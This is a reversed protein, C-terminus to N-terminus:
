GRLDFLLCEAQSSTTLVLDQAGSVKLADGAKLVEGNVNVEGAAVHLYTKRHALSAWTLTAGAELVTAFIHVDQHVKVIAYPENHGSAILRWRNKRAEREVMHQEYSPEIGRESPQIWIQLFHTPAEASPNFESHRIGRGASMRQVEGPKIVEGNGLSDRHELAGELVYTIIEMDQHSHTGFGQGPAVTDENIVRLDSFGMHEPDQYDAFSFSHYSKLWGHDAYGREHSRRYEIM